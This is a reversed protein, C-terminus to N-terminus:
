SARQTLLQLTGDFNATALLVKSLEYSGSLSHHFVLRLGTPCRTRRRVKGGM